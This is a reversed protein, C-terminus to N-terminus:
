QTIGAIIRLPAGSGNKIKMPLAIIQFSAFPLKDLQNLNEFGPINANMLIQHTKFDKSQGFDLSPTDLGVAAIKRNQILWEAASPSLGPFHLKQLAQNGKESTGFYAKRNPYLKGFGTYFLVITSDKIYGFESEFERIDEIQIQYDPNKAVKQDVPICVAQNILQHFPIQEVSKKGEAFHIPADLHTGGHEPASYSYSAYFYGAKTKGLHTPSHVFQNTDNPWYLTQEDFSHTLDIWETNKFPNLDSKPQCATLNLAIVSILLFSKQKM